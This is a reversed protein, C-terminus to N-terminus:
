VTQIVISCHYQLMSMSMMMMSTTPSWDFWHCGDCVM